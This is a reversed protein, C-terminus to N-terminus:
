KDFRKFLEDADKDGLGCGTEAIGRRFEDANLQKSGDDDMRRFMRGLGLIGTAGRSLCFYRLKDAPDKASGM